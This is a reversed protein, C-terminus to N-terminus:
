AFTVISRLATDIHNDNCYGYITKLNARSAHLLDWRIREQSHGSALIERGTPTAVCAVIAKSLEVIDQPHMKM